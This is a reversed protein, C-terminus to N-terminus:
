AQGRQAHPPTRSTPLHLEGTCRIVPRRASTTIDSAGKAVDTGRGGITIGIDAKRLAQDDNVGDGTMGMVHGMDHLMAVMRLKQEPTTRAFLM